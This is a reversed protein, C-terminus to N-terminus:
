NRVVYPKALKFTKIHKDLKIKTLYEKFEKLLPWPGVWVSKQVMIYNFKKLHWRLWEREGKKGTPIDFMLLLTRDKSTNEPKDFQKLSDIKRRVYVKGYKSLVIGALEKELVGKKKLRDITRRVSRLPYKRFRPIGFINVAVGKYKLETNWIEKLIESAISM